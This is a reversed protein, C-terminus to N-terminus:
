VVRCESDRGSERRDGCLWGYDGIFGFVWGTCGRPGGNKKVDQLGDQTYLTRFGMRSFNMPGVGTCWSSTLYVLEVKSINNLMTSLGM